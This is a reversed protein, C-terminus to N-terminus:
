LHNYASMHVSVPDEASATLANLWQGMKGARMNSCNLNKNLPHTFYLIELPVNCELSSSKLILICHIKKSGLLYM